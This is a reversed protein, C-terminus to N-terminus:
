AMRAVKAVLRSKTRSGKNAHIIGKTVSKDIRVISKELEVQAESKNNTSITEDLKKLQTHLLSKFQRNRTRRKRDVDITKTQAKTNAM